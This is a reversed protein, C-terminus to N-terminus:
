FMLGIRRVYNRDQGGSASVLFAGGGGDIPRLDLHLVGKLPGLDLHAHSLRVGIQGVVSATATFETTGNSLAVYWRNGEIQVRGSLFGGLDEIRYAGPSPFAGSAGAEEKAPPPDVAPVAPTFHADVPGVVRDDNVFEIQPKGGAAAAFFQALGRQLRNVLVISTAADSHESAALIPLHDRANAGGSPL